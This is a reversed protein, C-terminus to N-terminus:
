VCTGLAPRLGFLVVSNLSALFTGPLGYGAIFKSAFLGAALFYKTEHPSDQLNTM